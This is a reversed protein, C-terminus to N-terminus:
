QLFGLFFCCASTIIIWNLGVRDSEEEAHVSFYNRMSSDRLNVGSRTSFSAFIEWVPGKFSGSRLPAVADTTGYEFCSELLPLFTASLSLSLALSCRNTNSLSLYLTFLCVGVSVFKSVSLSSSILLFLHQKNGLLACNLTASSPM